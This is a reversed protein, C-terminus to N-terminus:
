SYKAVWDLWEQSLNADGWDFRLNGNPDAYYTFNTNRDITVREAPRAPFKKLQARLVATYASSNAPWFETSMLRDNFFTLRVKGSQGLDRFDGTLLVMDHRPRKDTPEIPAKYESWGSSNGSAAIQRRADEITSYSHLEGILLSPRPSSRCASFFIGTLLCLVFGCRGLFSIRSHEKLCRTRFTEFCMKNGGLGFLRGQAYADDCMDQCSKKGGACRRGVANNAQDMAEESAPQGDRNNAAEHNNGICTAVDPGLQRAMLCSWLCHRYADPPGNHLANRPFGMNAAWAISGQYAAIALNGATIAKSGACRFAGRAMAQLFCSFPAAQAAGRSFRSRNRSSAREQCPFRNRIRPHM